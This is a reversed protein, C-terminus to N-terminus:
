DELEEGKPLAKGEGRVPPAARDKFTTDNAEAREQKGEDKEVALDPVGRAGAKEMGPKAQAPAPGTLGADRMALANEMQVNTQAELVRTARDVHDERAQLYEDKDFGLAISATQEGVLGAEHARIIVEPSSTTYEAEEIETFIEDIREVSVRGSLLTTVINKALEQKVTKGPVSYMLDSLSKAELIRDGDDKLSYRDPYKVTAVQRKNKNKNEYSSWFNAINREVGELVLGIFSLGAELGQDSMKLAEASSARSGMKNQVELNVLKRIDDELKEQLAISANLPEPSPHIFGPREAKLDYTRGHSVGVRVDGGPKNDGAQTTGDDSVTKKLHDGVARMDKQETYFPFNAKLAYSVDSSGLNLLAIQHKYVDKLVSGNISAMAFPIRDLELNIDAVSKDGDLNIQYNDEDFLRMKVKGTNEDLWMMRYRTYTGSPLEIGGIYTANYDVGRDRLLVAKFEGPSGPDSVSWSLIDEIPYYYVYPRKNGVDALTEGNLRPMDVYIGVRGMVLLETLVDIGIFQQMSAGNNDVGGIEGAAARMYTQSGDRRTVDRLRQFISNRIDNVAAKAYSPIPTFFKRTSFDADTERESFKRLNRDVYGAGGDYCERWDEWYMMDNIYSPHRTDIIRTTQM